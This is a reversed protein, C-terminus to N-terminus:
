KDGVYYERHLLAFPERDEQGRTSFYTARLGRAKASAFSQQRQLRTESRIPKRVCYTITGENLDAILTSGGEFEM